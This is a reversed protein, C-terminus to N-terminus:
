PGAPMLSPAPLQHLAATITDLLYRHLSRHQLRCTERATLIREIFRDGHDCRTGGSRKRLLVAFRLAREARNNTADVGPIETFTWLAPWLDLLGSCFRSTKDDRMRAGQELLDMLRHHMDLLEPEDWAILHGQAQHERHTSLIQGATKKLQRGLRAIRGGRVCLAEFDRSLHSWCAQRQAVDIWNYGAYRDSVLVGTFDEGLLDKAVQRARTHTLHYVAIQETSALWAWRRLGPWRWGTEDMHVVPQEGVASALEGYAEALAQSTRKCIAEVSAASMPCGFNDVVFKAVEERSMHACLGVVTACLNPGFAGAPVGAPVAALTVKGCCSCKVRLRQHETVVCVVAPLEWVQHCVPDGVLGGVSLDGGCGDCRSPPHVMTADPNALMERHRGEHGSQGGPKRGSPERASRKPAQPPDSSPARSSDRSNQGLRRNLEEVEAMLAAVRELLVANQARLEGLDDSGAV